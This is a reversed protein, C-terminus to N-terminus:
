EFIHSCNWDLQAKVLAHLIYLICKASGMEWDGWRLQHPRISPSVRGTCHTVNCLIYVNKKSIHPENITWGHLVIYVSTRSPMHCWTYVLVCSSMWVQKLNLGLPIDGVTATFKCNVQDFLSYPCDCLTTQEAYGCVYAGLWTYESM